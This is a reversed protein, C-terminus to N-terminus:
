IIVAHFGGQLEEAACGEVFFLHGFDLGDPLRELVM